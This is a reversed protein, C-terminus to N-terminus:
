SQLSTRRGWSRNWSGDLCARYSCTCAVTAPYASANGARLPDVHSAARRLPNKGYTGDESNKRTIPVRANAIRRGRYPEYRTATASAPRATSVSCATEFIRAETANTKSSQFWGSKPMALVFPDPSRRLPEDERVSAVEAIVTGGFALGAILAAPIVWFGEVNYEIFVPAGLAFLAPLFMFPTTDAGMGFVERRATRLV